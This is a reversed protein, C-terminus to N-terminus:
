EGDATRLRHEVVHDRVDILADREALRDAVPLRDSEGDRVDADLELSHAQEGVAGRAARIALFVERLLHREGALETDLLAHRNARIADLHEAAMPVDLLM